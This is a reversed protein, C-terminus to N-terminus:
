LPSSERSELQISVASIIGLDELKKGIHVAVAYKPYVLTVTYPSYKTVQSFTNYVSLRRAQQTNEYNKASYQRVYQEVQASCVLTVKREMSNLETSISRNQATSLVSFFAASVLISLRM